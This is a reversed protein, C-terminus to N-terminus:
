KNRPVEDVARHLDDRTTAQVVIPTPDEPMTLKDLITFKIDRMDNSRLQTLDCCDRIISRREM